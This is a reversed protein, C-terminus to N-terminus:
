PQFRVVMVSINDRSNRAFATDRLQRAVDEEPRDHLQRVTDGVDDDTLVDYLGDCALVVVDRATFPGYVDPTETMGTSRYATDGFSRSVSLNGNLRAIGTFRTVIGGHAAIRQQERLLDPKHDESIRETPVSADSALRVAVARSDGCNAVYYQQTQPLVLLLCVTSGTNEVQEASHAAVLADHAASFAERLARRVDVCEQVHQVVIPALHDRLWRAVTAGGHGDCVAVVIPDASASVIMEDEMSSRHGRTEAMGIRVTGVNEQRTKNQM